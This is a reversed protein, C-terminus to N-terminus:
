HEHDGELIIGNKVFFFKDIAIQRNIFEELGTCTIFTQIEKISDLLYEKRSSDLESLVDDLLLIPTDGIKRRVLEIEALKLSLVATRQQGQSGYTRVDIDNRMIKLDDRHPGIGTNKYKLDQDRRAQLQELFHDGAHSEYFVSIEEKKGSLRGHIERIIENLEAVFEKRKEMISNGYKVLQDDWIDLTDILQEEYSIQALLQNRQKLVKQYQSLHYMYIKHLQCLEMDLFRRREGPGNKIISLDEPSFFIINLLGLLDGSRRIPMGNIAIGKAKKKKLHVDIRYEIGKKELILRIHGEDKGFRIMEKDKSGRHSKTTGALYISELINTKGQANDGYFLNTGPSLDVALEKYNRYDKLELSKIHM